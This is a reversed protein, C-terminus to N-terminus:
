EIVEDALQQLQLPVDLGLAKATKLNVVLEFKTPAQVPLDGAKEGRLIRDVYSASRRFLDILDVGYSMLGGNAAFYRFPYVASLQHKAALAIIIDRHVTIMLDPALILGGNPQRAFEGVASQIEAASKVDAERLQVGFLPVAARIVDFYPGPLNAPNKLTLVRTVRPAVDKLLNAWKGGMAREFHTFGTVNGGPKAISAVFGTEVPEPVQLFVIPIARTKAQLAALAAPAHAVLVDPNRSLLETAYARARDPDADTWLLDIKLNRGEIWQLDRLASRFAAVRAQGEPDDTISMLVGIRHMRESQQGRAAPPWAAAAGLLTILERRKM